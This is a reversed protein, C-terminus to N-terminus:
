RYLHYNGSTGGIRIMSSPDFHSMYKRYSQQSWSATRGIWFRTGPQLNTTGGRRERWRRRWCWQRRGRWRRRGALIIHAHIHINRSMSRCRNNLGFRHKRGTPRRLCCLNDDNGHDFCRQEVVFMWILVVIKYLYHLFLRILM